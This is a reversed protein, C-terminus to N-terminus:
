VDEVGNSHPRVNSGISLRDELNPDGVIISGKKQMVIVALEFAAVRETVDDLVRHEAAPQDFAGARDRVEGQQRWDLDTKDGGRHMTHGSSERVSALEVRPKHRRRVSCPGRQSPCGTNPRDLPPVRLGANYGRHPVLARMMPDGNLM